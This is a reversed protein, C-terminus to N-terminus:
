LLNWKVLFTVYLRRANVHCSTAVVELPCHCLPVEPLSVPVLKFQKCVFVGLGWGVPCCLSPVDIVICLVTSCENALQKWLWIWHQSLSHWWSYSCWVVAVDISHDPSVALMKIFRKSSFHWSRQIYLCKFGNVECMQASFNAVNDVAEWTYGCWFRVLTRHTTICNCQLLKMGASTNQGSKFCIYRNIDESFEDYEFWNPIVVM